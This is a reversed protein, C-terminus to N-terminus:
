FYIRSNTIVLATINEKSDVEGLIFDAVVKTIKIIQIMILTM